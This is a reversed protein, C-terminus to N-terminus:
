DEARRIVIVKPGETKIRRCMEAFSDLNEVIRAFVNHAVWGAPLFMRTDRGYVVSINYVEEHVGVESHPPFYHWLVEGPLPFLTQNEAPVEEGDFTRRGEPIPINVERGAFSAHTAMNGIPTSLAGWIARCTEPAGMELLEAIATVDAEQFTLAIKRTM